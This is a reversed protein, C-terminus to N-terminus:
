ILSWVGDKQCRVENPMKFGDNIAQIDNTGVEKVKYSVMKDYACCTAIRWVEWGNACSKIYIEARKWLVIPLHVPKDGEAWFRFQLVSDAKDDKLWELVDSEMGTRIELEKDPDFELMNGKLFAEREWFEVGAYMKRGDGKSAEGNM